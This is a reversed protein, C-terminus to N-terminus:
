ALASCSRVKSFGGGCVFDNLSPLAFIDMPLLLYIGIWESQVKCPEGSNCYM